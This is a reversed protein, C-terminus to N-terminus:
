APVSFLERPTATLVERGQPTVAVVDGLVMYGVVPHYTNPHVILTMGAEIRTTVDELIHPKTDAFLGMGHGRVRTYEDTVYAGLGHRRFVENEARAIDAATIGARVASMGAEMAERYLAFAALQDASPEGVVLTRCIQAYYGDVCPTLETTVLDGRKLKKGSPPAMGRVEPGGVGIIQFNDEVGNARFFAETEAILEYDARGPRAANRFVEYGRDAIRAGRRVADIEADLKAMLLRDILATADELKLDRRRAAIRHPILRHPGAGIRQNRLRDLAGDVEGVLDPAHIIELDPCDIEAREAEIPSDLYLTVAGDGRVLALAQGELIGFDTAYRLYDNQWANGYVLVADLGAEGMAGILRTKREAAMHNPMDGFGHM